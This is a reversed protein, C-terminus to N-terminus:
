PGAPIDAEISNLVWVGGVNVLKVEHDFGDNPGGKPVVVAEASEGDVELEKVEISDAVAGPVQAQRCGKVDGYNATILDETVVEGCAVDPDGSTFFAELASEPSKGASSGKGGGDSGGGDGGGVSAPPEVEEAADPGTPGTAATSTSSTTTTSSTTEDDGGCGALLALAAAAALITLLRM